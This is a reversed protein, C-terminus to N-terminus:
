PRNCSDRLSDGLGFQGQLWQYGSRGGRQLQEKEKQRHDAELEVAKSVETANKVLVYRRLTDSPAGRSTGTENVESRM